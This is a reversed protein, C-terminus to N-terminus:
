FDKNESCYLSGSFKPSWEVPLVYFILCLCLWLSPNAYIFVNRVGGRNIAHKWTSWLGKWFHLFTFKAWHGSYESNAEKKRNQIVPFSSGYLTEETLSKTLPEAQSHFQVAPPTSELVNSTERTRPNRTRVSSTHAWTRRVRSIYSVSPFRRGTTLPPQPWSFSSAGVRHM